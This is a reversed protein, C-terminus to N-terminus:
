VIIAKHYSFIFKTIESVDGFIILYRNNLGESFNAAIYIIPKYYNM